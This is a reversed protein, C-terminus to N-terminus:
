ARRRRLIEFGAAGLFILCGAGLVLSFIPKTMYNIPASQASIVRPIGSVFGEGAIENIASATSVFPEIWLVYMALAFQAGALWIFAKLFGPARPSFATAVIGLKLGAAVLAVTDNTSNLAGILTTAADNFIALGVWTFGASLWQPAGDSQAERFFYDSLGGGWYWSLCLQAICTAAAFRMRRGRARFQRRRTSRVGDRDGESPFASHQLIPLTFYRVDPAPTKGPSASRRGHAINYM